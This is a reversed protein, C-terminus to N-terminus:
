LSVDLGCALETTGVTRKGENLINIAANKDRDHEVSCKPCTWERVSLPLTEMVYNCKNCMKSSPFWRDVKIVTRGYWEAKYEIQRVLESLSVDSISKALCRNKMMGSINLDELIIVQNENVIQRSIKHLHDNRINTIKNYLRALRLRSKERNNSDKKTRSFDKNLVRLRKELTKYPRINKYVKGNSCTALTNLGLDIGVQKNIKPFQKINRDVLICVFYQGACNKSVTAHRIEGEIERHLKVKIGERFKPFFLKSGEVKIHQPITFSQKNRKAHFKPFKAKKSFFNNYATQLCKLSFQLVQSNTDKLWTKDKKLATLDAAQQYYNTTKGQNLYVDKRQGLFHNYV